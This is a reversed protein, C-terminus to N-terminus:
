EHDVEVFYADHSSLRAAPIQRPKGRINWRLPVAIHDITNQSPSSKFPLQATVVQLELFKLTSEIDRRMEASGVRQWGGALNQNWDGGWVTKSKPLAAKLSEM